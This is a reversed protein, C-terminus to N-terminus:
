PMPLSASRLVPYLNYRSDWSAHRRLFFELRDSPSAAFIADQELKRAFEAALAPNGELMERAIQEAVYPEMQEKQEFCQNFFGWAAFSDPAQPEFLAAILRALRQAIPVVLAGPLINVREESWAGPIAARMRGEFPAASFHVSGARFVEAPIRERPNDLRQFAIGHAELVPAIEAAFPLPVVYCGRPLNVVLSANVQDRLPVRWIQPTAPDYVTVLGGSIASPSRTYAYGRFDIIRAGTSDRGATANGAKGPERWGSSYDLAVASGGLGAAAVDAQRALELWRRGHAAVLGAVNVVTNRTVRVRTAYPKWSHTEVLLTFRNRQPFYGTSFRPSYVTL